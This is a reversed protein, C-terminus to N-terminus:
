QTTRIHLVQGHTVFGVRAYIREEAANAMLFAHPIDHALTQRILWDTMAAALGRRRYEPRVGVSTIETVGAFPPSYEGAGAPVAGPATQALVAGGSAELAHRLSEIDAPGPPEPAGYAEHQVIRVSLLEVDTSPAILEFGSPVPREGGVAHPFDMLALRGEPSFGARLLAPEVAPALDPIYELRPALGRDRYAGILARIDADSPVAGDEPIAYNLYPNPSRRSFSALFPGVMQCERWTRVSTRLFAQITNFDVM